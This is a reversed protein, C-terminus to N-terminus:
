WAATLSITAIISLLIGRPTCRSVHLATRRQGGFIWLYWGIITLIFFVVQLSMDAFLHARLFVVFFAIVNLLSIPFNWVSEKVTLWVCIAGTVFAFAEVGTTDGHHLLILALVTTSLTLAALILSDTHKYM